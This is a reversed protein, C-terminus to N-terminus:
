YSIELNKIAFVSDDVSEIVATNSGVKVNNKKFTLSYGREELNQYEKFLVESGSLIKVSVGGSKTINVVDFRIKGSTFSDYKSKSLDFSKEVKEETRTTYTITVVSNGSFESHNGARFVLSNTGFRIDSEGFRINDLPGSYIKKGNLEAIFTGRAEGVGFEIKGNKFTQYEDIIDFKFDNIKQDFSEVVVKIDKLNYVTPAWIRWGSSLASIEVIMEDSLFEKPVPIEYEGFVFVKKAIINDDVKIMMPAYSNTKAVYFNVTMKVPEDAKINYKLSNSGFILGNYLEKDGVSHTKNAWLNSISFDLTYPRNIDIDKPGVLLAGTLNKEIVTPPSAFEKIEVSPGFGSIILLAALAILGAVLFILFENAM